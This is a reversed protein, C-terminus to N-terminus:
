RASAGIAATQPCTPDARTECSAAAGPDPSPPIHRERHKERGQKKM